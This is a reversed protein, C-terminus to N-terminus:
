LDGYERYEQATKEPYTDIVWTGYTLESNALINKNRPLLCFMMPNGSPDQLNDQYCGINMDTVGRNSLFNCSVALMKSLDKATKDNIQMFNSANKVYINVEDPLRPAYPAMVIINDNECCLLPSNRIINFFDELPKESYEKLELYKNRRNLSTTSLGSPYAGDQFHPHKLTQGALKGWNIFNFVESFGKAKLDETNKKSVSTYILFDNQSLTALTKGHPAFCNTKHFLGFPFINPVCVEGEFFDRPLATKEYLNPICLPCQSVDTKIEEPTLQAEKKNTPLCPRKAREESIITQHGMFPFDIRSEVYSINQENHIVFSHKGISNFRDISTKYNDVIKTLSTKGNTSQKIFSYIKMPDTYIDSGSSVPFYVRHFRDILGSGCNLKKCETVSIPQEFNYRSNEDDPEASIAIQSM